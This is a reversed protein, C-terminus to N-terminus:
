ASIRAHRAAMAAALGGVLLVVAPGGWLLMTGTKLPPKLLIFDGYRQVLYAKIGEDSEGAQIHERVVLRIDRALAADSDDISQNQCVMCRLQSSLARARAELMPDALIESPGIAWVGQSVLGLL